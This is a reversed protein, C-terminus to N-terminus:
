LTHRFDLDCGPGTWILKAAGAGEMIGEGYIGYFGISEGTFVVADTDGLFRTIGSRDWPDGGASDSDVLQHGEQYFVADTGGCQWVDDGVQNYCSGLFRAPGNLDPASERKM